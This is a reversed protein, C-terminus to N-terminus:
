LSIQMASLPPLIRSHTAACFQRIRRTGKCVHVIDDSVLYSSSASRHSTLICIFRAAAGARSRCTPEEHEIGLERMPIAMVRNMVYSGGLGVLSMPVAVLLGVAIMVGINIDFNAAM